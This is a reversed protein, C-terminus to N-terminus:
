LFKAQEDATPLRCSDKKGFWRYRNRAIWGYVLDRLFSPVIIFGYLLPWPFPLRRAIRLAATSREYLQGDEILFVSSVADPDKGHEQLLRRGAENQNATFRFRDHKDRRIVFDVSSNCLNCVGDFIITM